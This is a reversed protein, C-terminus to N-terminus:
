TNNNERPVTKIDRTMFLVGNRYVLAHDSTENATSSGVSIETFDGYTSTGANIKKEPDFVLTEKALTDGYLGWLQIASAKDDYVAISNITQKYIKSETSFVVYKGEITKATQTSEEKFIRGDQYKMTVSCKSTTWFPLFALERRLANTDGRTAVLRRFRGLTMAEQSFAVCTILFIVLTLITKM